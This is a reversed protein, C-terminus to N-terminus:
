PAEKRTPKSAVWLRLSRYFDEICPGCLDLNRHDEVPSGIDLWYSSTSALPRGRGQGETLPEAGCRDCTFTTESAM